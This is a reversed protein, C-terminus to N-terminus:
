RSGSWTAGSYSDRCRWSVMQGFVDLDCHYSVSRGARWNYGSCDISYMSGFGTWTCLDGDSTTFSGMDASATAPTLLIAAALATAGLIRRM